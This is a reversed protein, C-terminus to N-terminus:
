KLSQMFGSYFLLVCLFYNPSSIKVARWWGIYVCILLLVLNCIFLFSLFFLKSFSLHRQSFSLYWVCLFTNGFAYFFFVFSSLVPFLFYVFQILFFLIFLRFIFFSLSFALVYGGEWGHYFSFLYFFMIILIIELHSLPLDHVLKASIKFIFSEKHFNSHTPSIPHSFIRALSFNFCQSSIWCLACLM